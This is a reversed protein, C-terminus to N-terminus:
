EISYNIDSNFTDSTTLGIYAKYKMRVGLGLKSAEVFINNASVASGFVMAVIGPTVGTLGIFNAILSVSNLQETQQALQKTKTPSVYYNFQTCSYGNIQASQPCGTAVANAKKINADVSLFSFMSCFVLFWLFKKKM